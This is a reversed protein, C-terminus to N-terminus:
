KKIKNTAFNPLSFSYKITEDFSFEKFHLYIYLNNTESLIIERYASFLFNSIPKFDSLKIQLTRNKQPNNDDIKCETILWNEKNINFLMKLNSSINSILLKEKENKFTSYKSELNSQSGMLIDQFHKYKLPVNTLNQLYDISYKQITKDVRNILILSDKKICVQLGIASIGLIQAKLTIYIVSDKIISINAIYTNSTNNELVEIKIKSNFTKYNINNKNINSIFSDLVQISDIIPKIEENSIQNLKISDQPIFIKSIHQMKQSSKCSLLITTVLILFYVTHIKQSKIM